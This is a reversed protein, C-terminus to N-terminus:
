NSLDLWDFTYNVCEGRPTVSVKQCIVFVVLWVISAVAVGYFTVVAGFHDILVGGLFNGVGYGLGFYVGHIIGQITGLSAPPVLIASYQSLSAWILAFMIGADCAHILM